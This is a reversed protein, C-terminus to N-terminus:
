RKESPHLDFAHAIGTNGLTTPSVVPPHLALRPRLECRATNLMGRTLVPPRLSATRRWSNERM